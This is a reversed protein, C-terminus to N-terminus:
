DNNDEELSAAFARVTMSLANYQREVQQLKNQYYTIGAVLADQPTKARMSLNMGRTDDYLWFGGTTESLTLTNTLDTSSIHKKM